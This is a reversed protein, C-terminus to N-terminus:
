LVKNKNEGKKMVQLVLEKLILLRTNDLLNKFMFFTEKQYEIMPDKNVRSRWSIGHILEESDKLFLQWEELLKKLFLLKILEEPLNSIIISVVSQNIFTKVDTKLKTEDDIDFKLRNKEYFSLVEEKYLLDKTLNEIFNEFLEKGNKSYITEIFNFITDRQIELIGDFKALNEFSQYEMIEYNQQAKKFNKNILTNEIKIGDKIDLNHLINKMSASFYKKVLEDELSHLFLVSGNRGHRATRGVIQEDMRLTLNQEFMIVFLGGLSNVEDSIQIDVGRGAIQTVVTIRNKDGAESIIKSEEEANKATLLSLHTENENFLDKLCSFIMESDKINTTGILVPQEKQRLEYVKKLLYKLKEKYSVFTIDKEKKLCSQFKESIIKVPLEYFNFFRIENKATGSMAAKNKTKKFFSQFTMKQYPIKESDLPLNEKQQLFQKTNDTTELLHKTGTKENIYFLKYNEVIYNKNKIFFTYATLANQVLKLIPYFEPEYINEINFEKELKIVGTDSLTCQEQVSDVIIDDKSFLPLCSIIKSFLEKDVPKDITLVTPKLASDILVSDAEDILFYSDFSIKFSNFRSYYLLYVTLLLEGVTYIIMKTNEDKKLEEEAEVFSLTTIINFHNFIEKFENVDRSLLYHNISLYYSPHKSELTKLILPIISSLSKGEGTNMNIANNKYLYYSAELQTDYLKKDTKIYIIYKIYAFKEELTNLSNFELVTIDIKESLYDDFFGNVKKIFKSLNEKKKLFIM